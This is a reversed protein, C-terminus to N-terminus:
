CHVLFQSLMHVFAIRHGVAGDFPVDPLALRPILRAAGVREAKLLPNQLQVYLYFRTITERNASGIVRGLVTGLSWRGAGM